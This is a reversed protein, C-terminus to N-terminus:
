GDGGEKMNRYDLMVARMKKLHRIFTLIPVPPDERLKALAAYTREDAPVVWYVRGARKTTTIEIGEIELFTADNIDALELAKDM